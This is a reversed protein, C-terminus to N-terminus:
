ASGVENDEYRWCQPRQSKNARPPMPQGVHMENVSAKLNAVFPIVRQDEDGDARAASPGSLREAARFGRPICPTFGTTPSASLRTYERRSVGSVIRAFRGSNALARTSVQGADDLSLRLPQSSM